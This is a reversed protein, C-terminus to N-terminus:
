NPKCRMYDSKIEAQNSRLEATILHRSDKVSKELAVLIKIITSRFQIEPMMNLELDQLEIASLITELEKKQPSNKMRTM